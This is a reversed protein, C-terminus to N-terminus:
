SAKVLKFMMLHRYQFYQGDCTILVLGAPAKAMDKIVKTKTPTVDHSGQYEYKFLHGNTSYVYAAADPGLGLLPGFVSRNNHGYILTQGKINNLLPTEAAYNATSPAVPWSKLAKSYSQKVVVLDISLSPIIIRNPQGSVPKVAPRSQLQTQAAAAATSVRHRHLTNEAVPVCVIVLAVALPLLRWKLNWWRRM